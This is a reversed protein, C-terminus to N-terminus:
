IYNQSLHQGLSRPCFVLLHTINTSMKFSIKHQIWIHSMWQLLFWSSQIVPFRLNAFIHNQHKGKIRFHDWLKSGVVLFDRFFDTKSCKVVIQFQRKKFKSKWEVRSVLGSGPKSGLISDCTSWSAVVKM